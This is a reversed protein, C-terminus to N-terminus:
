SGNIWVILMLSVDMFAAAYTKALSLVSTHTRTWVSTIPQYSSVVLVRQYILHYGIVGAKLATGMLAKTSFFSALVSKRHSPASKHLNRFLDLIESPSKGEALGLAVLSSSGNGIVLDFLDRIPAKLLREIEELVLAVVVGCPGAAELLLVRYGIDGPLRSSVWRSWQLCLPCQVFQHSKRESEMCCYYCLLHGCALAETPKQLLCGLCVTYCPTYYLKNNVLLKYHSLFEESQVEKYENQIDEAAAQLKGEIPADVHFSGPWRCPQKTQFGPLSLIAKDFYKQSSMHLHGHNKRLLECQVEGVGNFNFTAECPQHATVVVEVEKLLDRLYSSVGTISPAKNRIMHHRCTHYIRSALLGFATHFAKTTSITCKAAQFIFHFFAVLFDLHSQPPPRSLYVLDVFDIKATPDENLKTTAIQFFQFMENKTPVGETAFLGEAIVQKLKDVQDLFRLLSSSDPVHIRTLTILM